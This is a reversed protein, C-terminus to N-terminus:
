PRSTPSTRLYQRKRDPIRSWPRDGRRERVTEVTVGDRHIRIAHGGDRWLRFTSVPIDTAPCFRRSTRVLVIMHDVRGCDARAAGIDRAISILRGRMRVLCGSNDCSLAGEGSTEDPTLALPVKAGLHRLWMDREFRQGTGPSVYVKGPAIRVAFLGNEDSVLIDPSKVVASAALGAVIMPVGLYRVVGRWLCLWLGGLAVAGLAAVPMPPILAVAGPLGAIWDAVALVAEIGWGMPALAFSELGFPMLAFAAVACPMIWFATLPVAVMNAALGYLAIRNFHFIAFPATALTAVLTTLLTAAIFLGFRSGLWGSQRWEGLRPAAAEYVAVLAVVAAFSMQFSASLLSEPSLLLVIAGAIAVLRLSIATRDILVAGLSIAVMLFARETPIPAGSILLYLFAGLIAAAAAFKKIPYLLAVPEIAALLLRVVFFVLGAVLGIHLGSIALLHALGSDRMDALVDEPIARREGTMLAAAVPAAGPASGALIRQTAVQRIRAIATTASRETAPTVSRPAGLSYGVAGIRSFWAARAFDYGGPLSPSPPPQLIALLTVRDGAMVRDAGYRATIRVREPTLGRPIRDSQVRDLLLRVGNVQTESALVRGSVIVPGAERALRPAEVSLARIQAASMGLAVVLIGFAMMSVGRQVRRLFLGAVLATLVSGASYIVPPEAPLGFYLAIGFGFLVPLWLAFRDHNADACRAMFGLASFRNGDATAGANTALRTAM